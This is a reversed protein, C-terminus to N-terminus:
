EPSARGAAAAPAAPAAAAAAPAAAAAADAGAAAAAAAAAHVDDLPLPFRLVAAVGSLKALEEGSPHLSSFVHVAGGGAEVEEVLQVYRKRTAVDASRFLGDTVLLSAVAKEEVARRVFDYGYTARDTDENLASFFEDLAAIEARAKTDAIRAAVSPDQLAEALAHKHASSANALVIKGKNLLIQKIDGRQAQELAYRWFQEPYFSPGAIVVCKVVEFNIHRRFAELLAAYFREMAKDQASTSGIDKRPIAHEVRARVVTMHTTLLCVNGLGPQVLVAALEASKAPDCAVAVRDLHMKDWLAKALTLPRHLELELTHSQGKRVHESEEVNSGKVRMSCASSDFQVDDVRLALALKIRNAAVSGTSTESQVKSRAREM